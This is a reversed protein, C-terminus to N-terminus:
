FVSPTRLLVPGRQLVEPYKESINVLNVYGGEGRAAVPDLDRPTATAAAAEM